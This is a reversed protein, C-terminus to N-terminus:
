ESHFAQDNKEVEYSITHCFNGKFGDYWVALMSSLKEPKTGKYKKRRESLVTRIYNCIIPWVDTVFYLCGYLSLLVMASFFPTTALCWLVDGITTTHVHIYIRGTFLLFCVVSSPIPLLIIFQAVMLTLVHRYYSCFDKAIRRNFGWRSVFEGDLAFQEYETNWRSLYKFSM